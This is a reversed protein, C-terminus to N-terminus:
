FERRLGLSITQFWTDDAGDNDRIANRLQAYVETQRYVWRLNLTQDFAQTDFGVNGDINQYVLILSGRLHDTFRQNWSGTVTASDTRINEDTRDIHQYTASLGLTSGRGLPHTYRAEFLYSEFSSISSDREQAEAKLYLNWANYEVGYRLDTFDNEQLQASFDSPSRRQDQDLYIVFVSLGRLFTEDFTYRLSFGLDTTTTRGSPEPGIDYSILVTEGAVIGGPPPLRRIEVRDPTVLQLYDMGVTYPVGLLDAVVISSPEVNDEFIIILDSPPFTFSRDTVPVAVGREDQWRRNFNGGVGAYFTGKPVRKTYDFALSAQIEDSEFPDGRLDEHLGGLRGTTVLSDFLQHRFNSSADLRRVEVTEREFNEFRTDFFVDLKRNPRLHLRETWLFQEFNRDGSQDFYRVRSRLQHLNDWGFNMTHSVNAELRDFSITARNEGREEIDDFTFDWWMQQNPSINVRGDAQATKQDLTFDQAFTRDDQELERVFIEVNTPFVDSRVNLKAGTQTWTQEVSGGFLRDVDSQTRRSYVSFPYRQKQFFLGNLDYEFLFENFNDDIGTTDEDILRQTFRLGGRLDLQLLNPHGVFGQTSLELLQRFRDETDKTSSGVTPDIRSEDRRYELELAADLYYFDLWTLEQRPSVVVPASDQALVGGALMAAAIGSLGLSNRTARM